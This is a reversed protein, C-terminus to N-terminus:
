SRTREPNTLFREGAKIQASRVRKTGKKKGDGMVVVPVEEGDERVLYAEEYGQLLATDPVVVAGESERMPLNLDARIGGRKEIPFDKILLDVGIKRMSSDYDPSINEIEASVTEDLEPLYLEIQEMNSLKILQTPTFAMPVLLVNFNGLMALEDDKSVLEGPEIYRSIVKWGVPALIFHREKHERLMMEEVKLAELDEKARELDRELADLTTQAVHKKEILKRYREAELKYFKVATQIAQQKEQNRRIDFDVFTTDLEAFLGDKGIADGVDAYVAVCRADEESSITIITRPRTFGTMHIIRMAPEAVFTKEGHAEDFSMFICLWIFFFVKSWM